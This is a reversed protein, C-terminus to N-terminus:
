NPDLYTIHCVLDLHDSFAADKFAFTKGGPFIWVNSSNLLADMGSEYDILYDNIIRNKVDRQAEEVQDKFSLGLFEAVKDLFDSDLKDSNDKFDHYTKKAAMKGKGDVQIEYEDTIVYRVITKNENINVPGAPDVNVEIYVTPEAVIRITNGNVLYVNADFNYDIKLSGGIGFNEASDKDGYNYNFTLIKNSSPTPDVTEYTHPGYDFPESWGFSIGKMGHTEVDPTPQACANYLNESLLKNLHDVFVQKKIAMAGHYSSQDAEPVWNWEFHVPAPMNRKNTMMLWNLTYLSYKKTANGSNDLYPSDMFNLDTPIISADSKSEKPKIAYGLMYNGNPNVAKDTDKSDIIQKFINIGDYNELEPCDELQPSSQLRATNLDLYLQQVSFATDPNLNKVENQQEPPLKSFASDNNHLDLDVIYSFTWPKKYKLNGSDDTDSQSVHQWSGGSYGGIRLAVVAFEKYYANYAVKSDGQNLELYDPLDEVPFEMPSGAKVMFGFAFFHEKLKTIREDSLDTGDPIAFPDVQVKKYFEDYDTKDYKKTKSNYIYVVKFPKGEVGDLYEGLTANISDQTIGVVLDYGYKSASLNSQKASM